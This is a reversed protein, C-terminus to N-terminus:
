LRSFLGNISNKLAKPMLLKAYTKIHELYVQPCRKKALLLSRNIRNFAKSLDM